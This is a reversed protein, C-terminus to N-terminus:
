AYRFDKKCDWGSNVFEHSNEMLELSLSREWLWIKDFDNTGIRNGCVCKKWFLLLLAARTLVGGIYFCSLTLDM